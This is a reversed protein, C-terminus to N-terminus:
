RHGSPTPPTRHGTRGAVCAHHEGGPDPHPTSHNTTARDILRKQTTPRPAAAQSPREQGSLVEERRERRLSSNSRDTSTNNRRRPARDRPRPLGMAHSNTPGPSFARHKMAQRVAQGRIEDNHNTTQRRLGDCHARGARRTARRRGLTSRTM